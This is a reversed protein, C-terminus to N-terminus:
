TVLALDAVSPATEVDVVGLTLAVFETGDRHKGLAGVADSEM